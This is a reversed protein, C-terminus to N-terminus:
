KSEDSSVKSVKCKKSYQLPIAAKYGLLVTLRRLSQNHRIPLYLSQDECTRWITFM